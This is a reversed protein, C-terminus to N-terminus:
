GLRQLDTTEVAAWDRDDGIDRAEREAVRRPSLPFSHWIATSTTVRGRDFGAGSWSGAGRSDITSARSTTFVYSVPLTWTCASRPIENPTARPSITEIMPGLPEPM